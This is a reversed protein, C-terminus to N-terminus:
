CLELRIRSNSTFGVTIMCTCRNSMPMLRDDCVRVDAMTRHSINCSYGRALIQGGTVLSRKLLHPTSQHNQYINPM